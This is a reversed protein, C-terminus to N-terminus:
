KYGPTEQPSDARINSLDFGWCPVLNEGEGVGVWVGLEVMWGVVLVAGEM